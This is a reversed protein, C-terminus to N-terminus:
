QKRLISAVGQAVQINPTAGIEDIEGQCADALRRNFEGQDLYSIGNQKETLMATLVRIRHGQISVLALMAAVNITKTQAVRAQVSAFLTNVARTARQEDTLQSELEAGNIPSPQEEM